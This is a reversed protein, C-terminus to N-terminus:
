KLAFALQPDTDAVLRWTRRDFAAADVKWAAKTKASVNPNLDAAMGSADAMLGAAMPSAMADESYSQGAPDVLTLGPREMLPLPKGATNKITYSVVVFTEGTEAKPGVGAPGIQRPSAVDTVTIDVGTAKGTSGLAVAATESAAAGNGASTQGSGGCASLSLAAAILAITNKM